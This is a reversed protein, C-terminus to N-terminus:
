GNRSGGGRVAPWRGMMGNASLKDFHVQRRSSDKSLSLAFPLLSVWVWGFVAKRCAGLYPKIRAM